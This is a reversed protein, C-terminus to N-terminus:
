VHASFHDEKACSKFVEPITLLLPTLTSFLTHTTHSAAVRRGGPTQCLTHNVKTLRERPACCTEGGLAVCEVVSASVRLDM